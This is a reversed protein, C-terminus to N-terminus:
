NSTVHRIRRKKRIKEVIIHAPVLTAIGEVKLRFLTGEVSPAGTLGAAPTLYRCLAFQLLLYLAGYSLASLAPAATHGVELRAEVRKWRLAAWAAEAWPSPKKQPAFAQFVPRVSGDSRLWEVTLYPASLLSIRFRFPRSLLLYGAQLELYGGASELQLTARLRCASGSLLLLVALLGAFLFLVWVVM